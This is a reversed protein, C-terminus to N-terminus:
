AGGGEPWWAASLRGFCGYTHATRYEVFKGSGPAHISLGFGIYIGVHHINSPSTSFCLDGPLLPEFSAFRSRTASWQQRSTRPVSIGAARYAHLVLGSCDFTQPGTAAWVYQKGLQHRAVSVILSRASVREGSVDFGDVVVVTGTSASDKTGLVHITLTHVTDALGSRKWVAQQHSFFPAYQSVTGVVVGDLVIRAHGYSPGTPGTWAVSTGIFTVTITSGPRNSYVYTGSSASATRGVRWTGSPTLRDDTDDVRVITGRWRAPDAGAGEFEFADLLVSAGASAPSGRGLVRIVVAHYGDALGGVSWVNAGYEVVPAYLDVVGMSRGDLYVEAMGYAPGRVGIWRIASGWFPIVVYSDAHRAYAYGGASTSTSAGSVWTGRHKIRADDEEFRPVILEDATFGDVAIITGRSAADKEGLVQITLTHRGASLGEIAWIIQRHSARAAYQSVTRQYRGDLYVAARGYSSFRPGIWAIRTGSFHVTFTSGITGTYLLSGGSAATTRASSWRGERFVRSDREEYGASGAPLWSPGANPTGLVDFADFVVITGGSAADKTGTVKLVITHDVNALGSISWIAQQHLYAPAYQSVSAARVGDLWIEIRGYTPGVPGIVAV